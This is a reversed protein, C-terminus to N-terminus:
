AVSIAEVNLSFADIPVDTGANFATGGILDHLFPNTGVTGQVRSATTSSGTGADGSECFRFFAATGTTVDAGLCTWTEAAAKNLTGTTPTDFTLGTSGDGSLTITALLVSSGDIADQASTPVPGSFIHLKGGDLETKAAAALTKLLTNSLKM